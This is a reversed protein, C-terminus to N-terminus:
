RKLDVGRLIRRALGLGDGSPRQVVESVDFARLVDEPERQVSSRNM